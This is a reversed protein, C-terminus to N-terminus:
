RKLFSPSRKVPWGTVFSCFQQEILNPITGKEHQAGVIDDLDVKGAETAVGDWFARLAVCGFLALLLVPHPFLQTAAPQTFLISFPPM